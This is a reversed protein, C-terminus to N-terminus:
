QDVSREKGNSLIVRRYWDFSDKKIRNMTGTGDDAYDVYILGYRKKMEGTSSSIIDIPSWMTYGILNVGDDIAKEMEDIHSKLYNIRYPDHIKGMQDVQDVAGLGNEVVMLPIGYRDYLKNLTYRLGIPDIQWGWDSTELYPNRVGELLNGSTTDQKGESVTMCNTMYYSFTYYDVCGEKLLQRDNKEMEIHIKNDAFFKEAYYPYEGKVQVDGCFDNFLHDQQQVYLMDAPHCTRPYLTVHAIMCGVKMEADVAHAAKVARASAIFVNHLAQYRKQIDDVPDTYDVTKSDYIGLVELNGMPICAFNIENFTIWYKVKGKYREFVTKAYNEFFDIVKRNAFGGYHKVLYFPMDFHMLTVVPQIGYKLCEDFVKDYFQLGEENPLTEDGHPFIRSWAISMRFAKLGMEAFLAIDEKYHYYFDVAKWSPYCSDKEINWTFKRKIFKSGKSLHDSICDGKNGEDYGGEYQNAATAGGWLFDNPFSM